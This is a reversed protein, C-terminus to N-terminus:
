LFVGTNSERKLLTPPRHLQKGPFIAFSKLVANKHFAEPPQKQQMRVPYNDCIHRGIKVCENKWLSNDIDNSFQKIQAHTKKHTLLILILTM